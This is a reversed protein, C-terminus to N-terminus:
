HENHCIYGIQCRPTVHNFCRAEKALDAPAAPEFGRLLASCRTRRDEPRRIASIAVLEPRPTPVVLDGHPVLGSVDGGDEDHAVERMSSCNSGSKAGTEAVMGAGSQEILREPQGVLHLCRNPTGDMLIHREYPKWRVIAIRTQM